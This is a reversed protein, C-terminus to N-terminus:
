APDSRTRRSGYLGSAYGVTPWVLALLLGIAQTEEAASMNGVPLLRGPLWVFRVLLALCFALGVGLVDRIIQLSQFFRHHRRLM